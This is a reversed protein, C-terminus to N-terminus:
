TSELRVVLWLDIQARALDGADFGQQAPRVRSEAQDRWEVEKGEGLLGPEHPRQGRDDQLLGQGLRSGPVGGVAPQGDRDVDRDAVEEIRPENVGFWPKRTATGNGIVTLRLDILVAVEQANGSKATKAMTTM